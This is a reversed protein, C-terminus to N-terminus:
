ILNVEGSYCEVHYYKNSSQVRISESSGETPLIPMRCAGCRPAQVRHYDRVCYIRDDSDVAFPQDVLQRRCVICCFCAPHYLKGRAQLALDTISSGCSNCVEVPPYVGSFLFDDECFIQGSAAFFPKGSLRKDCVGCTFCESHFLRGMAWCAGAAALVAGGCGTCSGFRLSSCSSPDM